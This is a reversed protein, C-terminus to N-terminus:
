EVDDSARKDERAYSTGRHSKQHWRDAHMLSALGDCPEFLQEVVVEIKM